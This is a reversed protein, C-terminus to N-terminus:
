QNQNEFGDDVFAADGVALEFVVDQGDPNVITFEALGDSAGTTDLDLDFEGANSFSVDNIVVGPFTTTVDFEIRCSSAGALPPNYFGTGTVTVVASPLGTAVPNPAAGDFTPAPGSIKTVATAWNGGTQVAPTDQYEAIGYFTMDDCPDVTVQAYDGWRSPRPDNEFSQRLDGTDTGAFTNAPETFQGLPDNALRGAWYTSPAIGTTNNGTAIAIAHGQGNVSVAGLFIHTPDVENVSDFINGEQVLSSAAVDIEFFVVSHRDGTAPWLMLNGTTTDVSNTMATWLRGNRVQAGGLPRFGVPDLGWLNTGNPAPVGPYPVGNNYGDNKDNIPIDFWTISPAGPAGGPNSIKGLRLNTDSVASNGIVFGQTATPDYNDAPMPSWIPGLQLLDVLATTVANANGGAGPLQAKPLVFVATNTGGSGCGGTMPFMNAGIYIANNDVGLMPYDAFCGTESAGGVTDKPVIFWQTWVTAGSITASDSQAILLRNDVLSSGPGLDFAIIIWTDTLRDFRVRPDGGGNNDPDVGPVWFASAAVDLAVDAVGTLKDHFRYAGNQITAFQTPGVAGMTDPPTFPGGRIVSATALDISEFAAEVTLGDGIAAGSPAETEPRSVTQDGYQQRYAIKDFKASPEPVELVTISTRTSAELETQLALDSHRAQYASLAQAALHCPFGFCFAVILIAINRTRM